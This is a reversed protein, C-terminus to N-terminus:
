LKRVIGKEADVEVEDGDKFVQTAIKTGIVCPIKLERSIVSAHSLVGGEETVIGKVKDLVSVYLPSTLPTILIDGNKIKTLEETLIVIRAPGRVLGPYVARGKLEDSKKVPPMIKKEWQKVVKGTLIRGNPTPLFIYGRQRDYITELSVGHGTKLWLVIERPLCHMLEIPKLKLRKAIEKLVPLVFWASQYAREGRWSRYYIAENLTEIMLRLRKDPKIQRLWYNFEEHYQNKEQQYKKLLASSHKIKKMRQRYDGLSFFSLTFLQNAMWSFNDRHRLLAKKQKRKPLSAVKLLSHNEAGVVGEKLPTMFARLAQEADKPSLCHQVCSEIEQTLQAEVFLPTMGIAWFESVSDAYKDMWRSLQLNSYKKFIIKEMLHWDKLYHQHWRYHTSMLKLLFRPDLKLRGLVAKGLRDFEIQKMVVEGNIHYLHNHYDFNLIKKKGYALGKSYLAVYFPTRKRLHFTYWKM